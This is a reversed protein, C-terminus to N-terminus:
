LNAKKNSLNEAKLIRYDEGQREQIFLAVKGLPLGENEKNWMTISGVVVLRDMSRSMAVNIRNPEKLFRPKRDESNRTISVIVIRNEKGQYSDVTGIKVLSKFSESWSNENFKKRLARKQAAYMCIVGIAPEGDKVLNSLKQCFDFDQEIEKLIHIIQDIEEPNILSTGEPRDYSKKSESSTDLWTVTARLAAPGNRYFDPIYRENTQLKKDYFTYSVLNGIPEAM